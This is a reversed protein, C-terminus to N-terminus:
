LNFAPVSKIEPLYKSNQYCRELSTRFNTPLVFPEIEKRDSRIYLISDLYNSITEFEKNMFPPIICISDVNGNAYQIRYYNYSGAYFTNEEMTSDSLYSNLKKSYNFILNLRKMESNTLQFQYYTHTKRYNSKNNIKILGDKSLTFYIHIYPSDKKENRYPDVDFSAFEIKQLSSTYSNSCSAFFLFICTYFNFFKM